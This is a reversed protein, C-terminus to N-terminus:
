SSPALPDRIGDALIIFEGDFGGLDEPSVDVGSSDLDDATFGAVTGDVYVVDGEALDAEVSADPKIIVALQDEETGSPSTIFATGDILVKDVRALVTIDQGEYTGPDAALTSMDVRQGTEDGGVSTSASASPMAAGSSSPMAGMSSGAPTSAAPLSPITEDGGAGTGGRSCAAMLLVLAPLAAVRTMRHM